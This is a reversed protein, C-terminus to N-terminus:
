AAESCEEPAEGQAEQEDAEKSNYSSEAKDRYYDDAPRSSRNCNSSKIEKELKSAEEESIEGSEVLDSLENAIYDDAFRGKLRKLAAIRSLRSIKSELSSTRSNSSRKGKSGFREAYRAEAAALAEYMRGLRTGAFERAKKSFYEFLTNGIDSEALNKDKLMDLPQYNHGIEHYIVAMKVLDRAEKSNGLGYSRAESRIYKEFESNQYLISYPDITQLAAIWPRASEETGVGILDRPTGYRDSLFGTFKQFDPNFINKHTEDFMINRIDQIYNFNKSLNKGLENNNGRFFLPTVYKTLPTGKNFTALTEAGQILQSDGSYPKVISISQDKEATDKWRQFNDIRDERHHVPGYELVDYMDAYFTNQATKVKFKPGSGTMILPANWDLDLARSKADAYNSLAPANIFGISPRTFTFPVARADKIQIKSHKGFFAPTDVHISGTTYYGNIQTRM